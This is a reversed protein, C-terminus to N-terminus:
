QTIVPLPMCGAFLKNIARSGTGDLSNAIVTGEIVGYTLTAHAKPALITGKIEIDRVDIKEAEFFNYIVHQADTGRINLGFQKM